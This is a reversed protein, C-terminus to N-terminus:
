FIRKLPFNKKYNKLDDKLFKRLNELNKETFELEKKFEPGANVQFYEFNKIAEPYRKLEGLPFAKLYYGRLYQPDLDLAHNIDDIAEEHHTLKYNAMGKNAWGKVNDPEQKLAHSYCELAKKFKKQEYYNQVKVWGNM